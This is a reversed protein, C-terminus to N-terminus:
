SNACVLHTIGQAFGWRREPTWVALARTATPFTAGEGIGLAQLRLRVCLSALGGVAGGTAGGDGRM